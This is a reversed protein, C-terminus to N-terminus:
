FGWGGGGGGTATVAERAGRHVEVEQSAAHTAFPESWLRNEVAYVWLGGDGGVTSETGSTGGGPRALARGLTWSRPWRRWLRCLFHM